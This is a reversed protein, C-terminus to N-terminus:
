SQINSYQITEISTYLAVLSYIRALLIVLIIKRRQLILRAVVDVGVSYLFKQRLNHRSTCRSKSLLTKM